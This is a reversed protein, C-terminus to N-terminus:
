RKSLKEFMREAGLIEIYHKAQTQPTHGMIEAVDVVDYRNDRILENERFKRISHFLKGDVWIKYKKMADRLMQQPTKRNIWRFVRGNNIAQYKKLHKIVTKTEPFLQLSFQRPRNGKGHILFYKTHIDEWKLNIVEEIRMGTLRIFLILYAMEPDNKKYFHKFLLCIEKLTMVLNTTKVKKPIMARLLPNREIYGEAVGFKFVTYIINLLNNLTNQHLTSIQILENLNERIIEPDLPLDAKFFHRFADLHKNKNIQSFNKFHINIFKQQLQSITFAPGPIDQVTFQNVIRQMLENIAYEKHSPLWLYNTSERKHGQIYTYAKGGREYCYGFNFFQNTRPLYWREKNKLNRARGM